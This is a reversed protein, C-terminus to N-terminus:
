AYDVFRFGINRMFVQQLVVDFNQFSRKFIIQSNDESLNKFHKQSLLYSTLQAIIVGTIKWVKNSSLRQTLLNSLHQFHQYDFRKLFNNWYSLDKTLRSLGNLITSAKCYFSEAHNEFKLKFECCSKQSSYIIISSTSYSQKNVRSYKFASSLYWPQNTTM